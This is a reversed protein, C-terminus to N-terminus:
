PRSDFAFAAEEVEKEDDDDDDDDDSHVENASRPTSMQLMSVLLITDTM